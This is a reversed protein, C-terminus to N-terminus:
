ATVDIQSGKAQQAGDQAAQQQETQLLRLQQQMQEQLQKGQQADASKLDSLEISMSNLVAQSNLPPINM